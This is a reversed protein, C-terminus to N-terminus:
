YDIGMFATVSKSPSMLLSENLFIGLHRQPELTRFIERQLELSLDGYGASFRPRVSGVHEAIESQFTDCLAEVRESGIAQYALSLSPSIRSYKLIKRDIEYGVTAAFLVARGCGLLNKSLKQSHAKFVGFDCVDGTVDVSLECYCVRYSLMDRIDALAEKVLAKTKEDAWSAGMYRFIERESIKPESYERVCVPISM